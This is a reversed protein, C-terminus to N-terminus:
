PKSPVHFAERIRAMALAARSKVTGLPIGLAEAVESYSLGQYVSLLIVDRQKAPLRDLAWRADLIGDVLSLRQCEAAVSERNSELSMCVLERRAKRLLDVHVNRAIRYLLVRLARLPECRIRKRYAYLRLFTEQVCDDADHSSQGLLRFYRYLERGRLDILEVFAAESGMAIEAALRADTLDITEDMLWAALICVDSQNLLRRRILGWQPARGSLGRAGGGSTDWM